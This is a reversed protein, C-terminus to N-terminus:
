LTNLVPTGTPNKKGFSQVLTNCMAYLKETQKESLLHKRIEVKM